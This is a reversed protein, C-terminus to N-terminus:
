RAKIEGAERARIRALLNHREKNLEIIKAELAAVKDKMAKVTKYRVAINSPSLNQRDGDVFYATETADLKRGLKDEAVLRHTLEWKGDQRTYHYGNQATRTTGDVSRQGRPV